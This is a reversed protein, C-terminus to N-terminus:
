GFDWKLTRMSNRMWNPTIMSEKNLRALPSRRHFLFKSLSGNVTVDLSAFGRLINIGAQVSGLLPKEFPQCSIPGTRRVPEFFL